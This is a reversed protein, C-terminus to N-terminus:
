QVLVCPPSTPFQNITSNSLSVANSPSGHQWTLSRWLTHQLPQDLRACQHSLTCCTHLRVWVWLGILRVRALHPQKFWACVSTDM